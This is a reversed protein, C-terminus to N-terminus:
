ESPSLSSKASNDLSPLVNDVYRWFEKELRLWDEESKLNRLLLYGGLFMTELLIGWKVFQRGSKKCLDFKVVFDNPNGEIAMSVYGDIKFYPSEQAVILYGTPIEGKVAEFDWEKFFEGIRTALLALDINKETWNKQM